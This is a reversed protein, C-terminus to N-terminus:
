RRAMLREKSPPSIFSPLSAYKAPPTPRPLMFMPAQRTIAAVQVERKPSAPKELARNAPRSNGTLWYRSGARREIIGADRLQQVCKTISTKEVHPLHYRLSTLFLGPYRGLLAIILDSLM